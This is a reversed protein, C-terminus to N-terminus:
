VVRFEEHREDVFLKSEGFRVFDEDFYCRCCRGGCRLLLDHILHATVDHVATAKATDHPQFVAPEAHKCRGLRADVRHLSGDSGPLVGTKRKRYGFLVATAHAQLESATGSQPRGSTWCRVFLGDPAAQQRGEFFLDDVEPPLRRIPIAVRTANLRIFPHVFPRFTQQRKFLARRALM